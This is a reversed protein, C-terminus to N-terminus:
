MNEPHRNPQPIPENMQRGKKTTRCFQCFFHPPTLFFHISPSSFTLPLKIGIGELITEFRVSDELNLHYCFNCNRQAMNLTQYKKQSSFVSQHGRKQCFFIGGYSIFVPRKSKFMIKFIECIM